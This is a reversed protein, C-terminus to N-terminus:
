RDRLPLGDYGRHRMKTGFIMAQAESTASLKMVGWSQERAMALETRHTGHTAARRM